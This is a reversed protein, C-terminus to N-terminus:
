IIDMIKSNLNLDKPFFSNTNIKIKPKIVLKNSPWSEKIISNEDNVGTIEVM